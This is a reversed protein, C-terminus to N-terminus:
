REIHCIKTAIQSVKALAETHCVSLNGRIKSTCIRAIVGVGLGGGCHLPNNQITLFRHSKNLYCIRAIVFMEYGMKFDRKFGPM